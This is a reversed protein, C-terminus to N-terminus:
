RYRYVDVTLRRCAWEAGAIRTAHVNLSSTAMNHMLSLMPPTKNTSGTCPSDCRASKGGRVKGAYRM